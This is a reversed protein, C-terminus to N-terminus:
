VQDDHAEEVNQHNEMVQRCMHVVTQFVAQKQTPMLLGWLDEPLAQQTATVRVPRTTSPMTRRAETLIGM